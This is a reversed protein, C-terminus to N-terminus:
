NEIMMVDFMKGYNEEKKEYSWKDKDKWIRPTVFIFTAEAPNICLPDKKRKQYDEEAKKQKDKKASLEWVSIGKPIYENGSNTELRGDYGSHNIGDGAPFCLYHIDKITAKILYRILLPLNEQCDRRGAWDKLDTEEIWRM